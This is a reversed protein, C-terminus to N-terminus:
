MCYRDVYADQKILSQGVLKQKILSGWIFLSLRYNFDVRQYM